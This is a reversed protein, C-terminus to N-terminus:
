NTLKVTYTGYSVTPNGGTPSIRMPAPNVPSSFYGQIQKTSGGVSGSLTFWAWGQLGGSDDVIAVPWSQGVHAALDDFLTTHSGANLPGIQDNLYISKDYGGGSILDDVTSSDGNCPNGNAECFVTWNFKSPGTPVDSPGSGPEDFAKPSNPNRSKPDDYADENFILPMAGYAGNPIGAQVTATTSVNWTAFGLVGAFYNRHPKTVSVTIDSPTQTVTIVVGGSGDTYGNAVAVANAATTVNTGALYAYGAAMAAADAVNQQDRRQVFTGGGDIVLGVTGIVAVLSIAFVVLLQGREHTRHTTSM